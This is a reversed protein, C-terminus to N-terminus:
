LSSWLSPALMLAKYITHSSSRPWQCCPRLQRSALTPSALARGGCHQWDRTRLLPTHPPPLPPRPVRVQLGASGRSTTSSTTPTTPPSPSGSTITTLRLARGPARGRGDWGRGGETRCSCIVGCGTFPSPCLSPMLCWTHTHTHTHTVPSPYLSPMLCWTHTHTQPPPPPAWRCTPSGTQSSAPASTSGSHWCAASPPVSLMHWTCCVRGSAPCTACTSSTTSSPQHWSCRLRGALPPSSHKLVQLQWTSWALRERPMRSTDEGKRKSLYLLNAICHLIINWYFKGM